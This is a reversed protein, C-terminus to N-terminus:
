QNRNTGIPEIAVWLEMTATHSKPDYGDKYVEINPADIRHYRSSPWFEKTMTYRFNAIGSAPGTYTAVLYDQPSVAVGSYGKPLKELDAVAVSPVYFFQKQQELSYCVAYTSGEVRGTLTPADHLLRSWARRISQTTTPGASKGIAAAPGALKLTALHEVRTPGLPVVKFLAKESASQPDPCAHLQDTVAARGPQVQIIGVALAVVSWVILRKSGEWARGRRNGNKRMKNPMKNERNKM